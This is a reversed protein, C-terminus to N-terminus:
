KAAVNINAFRIHPLIGYYLVDADKGIADIKKLLSFINDSMMMGTVGGSIEGNKIRYAPNCVVSFDGSEPNSGHVGQFGLVYYGDKIDFLEEKSYDGPEVMMTTQQIDMENAKDKYYANGTSTNGTRKAWYDNWIFGKLIGDEILLTDQRPVGEDDMEQSFVGEPIVGNDRFTFQSDAIKEGEKGTLLSKGRAVNEGSLIKSLTFFFLLQLNRPALIIQSTGASASRVNKFLNIKKIVSEAIKHPDVDYKRTYQFKRFEPTVGTDLSGIAEMGSSVLAGKDEHSIGNSNCCARESFEVGNFASSVKIHPPVAQIMDIVPGMLQDSSINGLSSDWVNVRPYEGPYPLSNWTEDKKSVRAAALAKEIAIKVHEKDLRYTVSSGMAKDKIVRIRVKEDHAKSAKNITGLEAEVGMYVNKTYIAEIEDAIKEGTKVAYRCIDIM